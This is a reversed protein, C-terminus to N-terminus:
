LDYIYMYIHCCKPKRTSSILKILNASHLADATPWLFLCSAINKYQNCPLPYLSNRKIDATPSSITKECFVLSFWEKYIIHLRLYMWHRGYHYYTTLFLMKKNNMCKPLYSQTCLTHPLYSSTFHSSIKEKNIWM